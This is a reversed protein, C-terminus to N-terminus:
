RTKNGNKLNDMEATTKDRVNAEKIQGLVDHAKDFKGQAALAKAKYSKVKDWTEVNIYRNSRNITKEAASLEAWKGSLYSVEMLSVLAPVENPYIKLMKKIIKLAYAYDHKQMALEYTFWLLRPNEPYLKKAIDLAKQYKDDDGRSLYIKAVLLEYYPIGINDKIVRLLIEEAGKGKEFYILNEALHLQLMIDYPRKRASKKLMDIGQQTQGTEILADAYSEAILRMYPFREYKEQLYKLWQDPGYEVKVLDSEVAIVKQENLFESPMDKITKKAEELRNERILLPVRLMVVAVPELQKDYKQIIEDVRSFKGSYFYYLANYYPIAWDPVSSADQGALTQLQKLLGEMMTISETDVAFELAGIYGWAAGIHDGSLDSFRTLAKRCEGRLLDYYGQAFESQYASLPPHKLFSPFSKNAEVLAECYIMLMVPDKEQDWPYASFATVIKEYSCSRALSAITQYDLKSIRDQRVCAIVILAALFLLISLKKFLIKKM